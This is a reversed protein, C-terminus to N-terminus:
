WHADISKFYDNLQQRYEYNSKSTKILNEIEKDVLKNEGMKANLSELQTELSVNFEEFPLNEYRNQFRNWVIKKIPLVNWDEPQYNPYSGMSSGFFAELKLGKYPIEWDTAKEHFVLESKLNFRDKIENEFIVQALYTYQDDGTFKLEMQTFTSNAKFKEMIYPMKKAIVRSFQETDAHIHVEILTNEDQINFVYFVSKDKIYSSDAESLKANDLLFLMDNLYGFNERSYTQGIALNDLNAEESSLIENKYLRSKQGWFGNYGAQLWENKKMSRDVAEHFIYLGFSHKYLIPEKQNEIYALSVMESKSISPRNILSEQFKRKGEEFLREENTQTVKVTDLLQFAFEMQVLVTDKTPLAMKIPLFSIHSIVIEDPATNKDFEIMGTKDSILIRQNDLRQVNAYPIPEKNSDQIILVQSLGDFQFLLFSVLLFIRFNTM